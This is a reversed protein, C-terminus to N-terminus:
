KCKEAHLIEKQITLAWCGPEKLEELALGNWLLSGPVWAPPVTVRMDTVTRSIIQIAKEAPLYEAQVRASVGSDRRPLVFRTEIRFRDKGRQLMAVTHGEETVRDLMERYQKADAIPKGDLAVIRDGIKLLGNYKEPLFSVLIGPGPDDLKWGFGGLDLAASNGGAIRTSPLVDNREAPDFKTMQIWYCRAFQPSLTECDISAPFEDRKHEALWQFVTGTNASSAPRWELKLNAATLKEVLAKGDDGSIWLLPVNTFNAAFIRNTDIAPQPSGGLAVAAAWVDPLRAVTYFVLAAADGRGALYVRGADVNGGKIAADVKKALALVRQDINADVAAEPAVVQWGLERTWNQWQAADASDVLAIAPVKQQAM